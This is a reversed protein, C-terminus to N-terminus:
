FVFGAKELVELNVLTNSLKTKTFSQRQHIEAWGYTFSCKWIERRRLKLGPSLNSWMWRGEKSAQEHYSHNGFNDSAIVTLSFSFHYRRKEYFLIFCFFVFYFRFSILKNFHWIYKPSYDLAKTVTRCSSGPIRKRIMTTLRERGFILIIIAPATMTSHGIFSGPPVLATMAGVQVTQIM